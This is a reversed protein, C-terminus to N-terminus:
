GITRFNEEALDFMGALIDWDVRSQM